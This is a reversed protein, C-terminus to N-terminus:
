IRNPNFYYDGEECKKEYIPVVDRNMECVLFIMSNEFVSFEIKCKSESPMHFM